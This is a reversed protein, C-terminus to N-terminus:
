RGQSELQELHEVARARIQTDEAEAALPELINRAAEWQEKNLRIRAIQLLAPERKESDRYNKIFQMFHPEARELDGESYYSEAVWYNADDAYDGKPYDQLFRTLRDRLRTYDANELASMAQSYAALEDADPLQAPAITPLPANLQPTIQPPQQVATQPQQQPTIQPPQQSTIQPPQQAATQSPQPVVAESTAAPPPEALTPPESLEAIQSKLSEVVRTLEEVRAKSQDLEQPLQQMEAIVQQAEALRENTENLAQRLQQAERLVQQVQSDSDGSETLETPETLLVAPPPRNDVQTQLDELQANLNKDLNNLQYQLLENQNRLEAVENQLQQMQDFVRTLLPTPKQAVAVASLCLMWTLLLCKIMTGGRSPRAMM